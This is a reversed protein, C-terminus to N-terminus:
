QSIIRDYASAFAKIGKKTLAASIMSFLLQIYYKTHDTKIGSSLMSFVAKDFVWSNFIILLGHIKLKM